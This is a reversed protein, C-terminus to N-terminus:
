SPSIFYKQHDLVVVTEMTKQKTNEKLFFDQM